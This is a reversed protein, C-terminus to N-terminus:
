LSKLAARVRRALVAGSTGSAFLTIVTDGKGLLLLKAKLISHHLLLETTIKSFGLPSPANSTIDKDL